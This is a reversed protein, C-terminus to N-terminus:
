LLVCGLFLGNLTSSPLALFLCFSYSFKTGPRFGAHVGPGGAAVQLREVLGRSTELIQADDTLPM